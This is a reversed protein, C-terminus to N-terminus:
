GRIVGMWRWALLRDAGFRGQEYRALASKMAKGTAWRSGYPLSERVEVVLGDGVLAAVAEEAEARRATWSRHNAVTTALERPTAVVEASESPGPREPLVRDRIETWSRHNGVVTSLEEADVREAFTRRFQLESRSKGTAESLAPNEVRVLGVLRGFHRAEFYDAEVGASVVEPERIRRAM